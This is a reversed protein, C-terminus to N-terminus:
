SWFKLPSGGDVEVTMKMECSWWCRLSNLGDVRTDSEAVSVCNV